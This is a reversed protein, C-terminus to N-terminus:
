QGASLRVSPATGACIVRHGPGPTDAISVLAYEHGTRRYEMEHGWGDVWYHAMPLPLPPRDQSPVVDRRSAPLSGSHERRYDEISTSLIAMRNLTVAEPSPFVTSSDDLFGVDPSTAAMGGNRQCAAVVEPQGHGWCGVALVALLCASSGTRFSIRQRMRM